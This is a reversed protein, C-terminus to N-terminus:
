LDKMIMECATQWSKWTETWIELPSYQQSSKIDWVQFHVSQFCHSYIFRVYINMQFSPACQLVNWDTSHLCDWSQTLLLFSGSSESRFSKEPFQYRYPYHYSGILKWLPKSQQQSQHYIGILAWYQNSQKSNFAM